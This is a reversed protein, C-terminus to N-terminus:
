SRKRIIFCILLYLLSPCISLLFISWLPLGTYTIEGLDKNEIMPEYPQNPLSLMLEGNASNIQNQKRLLEIEARKMEVSNDLKANIRQLEKQVVIGHKGFAVTLTIFIIIFVLLSLCINTRTFM